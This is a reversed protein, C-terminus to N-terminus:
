NQYKQQTMGDLHFINQSQSPGMTDITHWNIFCIKDKASLLKSPM